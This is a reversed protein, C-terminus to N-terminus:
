FKLTLESGEKGKLGPVRPLRLGMAEHGLPMRSHSGLVLYPELHGSWLSAGPWERCARARVQVWSGGGTGRAGPGMMVCFWPEQHNEKCPDM